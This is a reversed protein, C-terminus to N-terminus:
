VNGYSNLKVVLQSIVLITNDSTFDDIRRKLSREATDRSPLLLYGIDSITAALVPISGQVEQERDLLKVM